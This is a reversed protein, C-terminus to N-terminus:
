YIRTIFFRAPQAHHTNMLLFVARKGSKLFPLLLKIFLVCSKCKWIVLSYYYYYLVWVRVPSVGAALVKQSRGTFKRACPYLKCALDRSPEAPLNNLAICVGCWFINANLIRSEEFVATIQQLDCKSVSFDYTCLICIAREIACMAKTKDWRSSSAPCFRLKNKVVVQTPNQFLARLRLSLFPRVRKPRDWWYLMYLRFLFNHMHASGTLNCLSFALHNILFFNRRRQQWSDPPTQTSGLTKHECVERAPLSISM